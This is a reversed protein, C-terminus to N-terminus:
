RNTITCHQTIFDLAYHIYFGTARHRVYLLSEAIKEEEWVCTGTSAQKGTRKM